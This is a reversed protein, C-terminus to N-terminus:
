DGLEALREPVPVTPLGADVDAATEDWSKLGSVADLGSASYM